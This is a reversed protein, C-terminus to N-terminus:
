TLQTGSKFEAIEKAPNEKSGLCNLHKRQYGKGIIM